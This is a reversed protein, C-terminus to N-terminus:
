GWLDSFRPLRERSWTAPEGGPADSSTQGRADGGNEFAAM